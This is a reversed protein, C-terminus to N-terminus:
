AKKEIEGRLAVFEKELQAKKKFLMAVMGVSGQDSWVCVATPVGAASSDGCKAIGGLPGPDTDVLSNTSFGGETLGKTFEDFRSQQTGTLTSAAAIMVVDQKKLNGYISGVSSTTGKISKMSSDLADVSDQLQPDTVKQRGGLTTPEVVSIKSAAVVNEVKDKSTVFVFIGGAVCVLLVVGVVILVIKLAGGKKKPPPAGYPQQGPMGPPPYGGGEPAPYGGQAGYGSPPPPAQYGGQEPSYGGGQYGGGQYGGGQYGGGQYGGGQHGGGQYSGGQYSGGSTPPSQPYSPPQNGGGEPDPGPGYPPYPPQSM